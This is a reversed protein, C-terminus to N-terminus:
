SLTDPHGIPRLDCENVYWRASMPSYALYVRHQLGTKRPVNLEIVIVEVWKGTNGHIRVMWRSDKTVKDGEKAAKGNETTVTNNM